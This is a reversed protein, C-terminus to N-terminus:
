DQAITLAGPAFEVVDGNDVGTKSATLAGYYVVASINPFNTGSPVLDDSTQVAAYHSITAPSGLGSVASSSLANSNAVTRANPSSGTPAGWDADTSQIPPAGTFRNTYVETATVVRDASASATCPVIWTKKAALAAGTLAKLAIDQGGQALEKAM